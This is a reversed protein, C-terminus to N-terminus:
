SLDTNKAKKLTFIISTGVGEVSEAWVKGGHASIIQEVISLGLGSGGTSSTRSADARYFQQFIYPLSAAAIGPGEDEIHIRIFEDPPLAPEIESGDKNLQRYLPPQEPKSPEETIIVHLTSPSHDMYKEANNVINFIVRKLKEPDAMVKTDPPTSNFMSLTMGYSQLDLSLDEMCDTFYDSLNIPILDYHLRSQEMKAFLSLEEVLYTMDNAKAYITHLYKHQMEETGAIGDLLGESYAKVATLPTKLDHSVNNLMERTADEYHIREDMMSKLRIRMEEFEQCLEGIEDSSIPHIPYDLNGAGIQITAIRLISIPYAISRYLWIVLLLATILIIALFSYILDFIAKKWHPALSALNTVLFLQGQTGNSFYFDKKKTVMSAGQDMYVINDTGKEYKIFGPLTEMRKHQKSNGTFTVKGDIKLILFSDRSALHDNAKQLYDTDYFRDPNQDATQVLAVYDNMTVNFIITIPNLSLEYDSSEIDYNSKLFTTQREMVFHVCLVSMGFPFLIMILFAIILKTRIKM